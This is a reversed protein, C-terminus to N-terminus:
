NAVGCDEGPTELRNAMSLSKHGKRSRFHNGFPLYVFYNIMKASTRAQLHRFPFAGAPGVAGHFVGQFLGLFGSFLLTLLPLWVKACVFNVTIVQVQGLSFFGFFFSRAFREAANAHTHTLPLTAVNQTSCIVM